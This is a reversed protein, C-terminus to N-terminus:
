LLPVFVEEESEPSEHGLYKKGMVQFHAKEAAREGSQPLWESYMYRALEGFDKAMGKYVFRAFRGGPITLVEMGEPVDDASSVEVGAWEQFELTPSFAPGFYGEPYVQLAMLEENPRNRIEQLRPMFAQWLQATRSEAVLSAAQHMGIVLRTPLTLIDPIM